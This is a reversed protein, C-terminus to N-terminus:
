ERDVLRGRALCGLDGICVRMRVLIGTHVGFRHFQEFGLLEGFDEVTPLGGIEGEGFGEAGADVGGLGEGAEADAEAELFAVGFCEGDEASGGGERGVVGEEPVVEGDDELASGEEGFGDFGEVAGEGEVVVLGVGPEEEAVHLFFVAVEAGCFGGVLGGEFELGIEGEGPLAEAEEFLFLSQEMLGDIAEEGGGFGAADGGGDEGNEALEEVLGSLELFGEVGVGGGRFEVGFVREVFFHAATELEEAVDKVGLGDVGGEGGVLLIEGRGGAGFAAVDGRQEL